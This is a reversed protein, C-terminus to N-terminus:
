SVWGGGPRRLSRVAFRLDQFLLDMMNGRTANHHAGGGRPRGPLVRRFRVLRLPVARRVADVIESLWYILQGRRGAALYSEREVEAFVRQM